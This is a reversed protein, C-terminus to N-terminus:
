LSQRKLCIQLIILIDAEEGSMFSENQMCQSYSSETGGGSLARLTKIADFRTRVFLIESRFISSKIEFFFNAFLDDFTERSFHGGRAPPLCCKYECNSKPRM